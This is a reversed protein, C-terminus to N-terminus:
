VPYVPGQGDELIYFDIQRFQKPLAMLIDAVRTGPLKGDKGCKENKMKIQIMLAWGLEAGYNVPCIQCNKFIVTDIASDATRVHEYFDKVNSTFFGRSVAKYFNKGNGTAPNWYKTAETGTIDYDLLYEYKIENDPLSKKEELQQRLLGIEAEM